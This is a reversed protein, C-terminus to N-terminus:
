VHICNTENLGCSDKRELWVRNIYNLYQKPVETHLFIWISYIFIVYKYQMCIVAHKEGFQTPNAYLTCRQLPSFRQYGFFGNENLLTSTFPWPVGKFITRGNERERERWIIIHWSAKLAGEAKQLVIATNWFMLM